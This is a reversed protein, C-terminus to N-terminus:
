KIVGTAILDQRAVELKEVVIAYFRDMTVGNQEVDSATGRLKDGLIQAVRMEQTVNGDNVAPSPWTTYKALLEAMVDTCADFLFQQDGYVHGANTAETGFSSAIDVCAQSTPAFFKPNITPVPVPSTAQTSPATSCGVAFTLVLVLSVLKTLHKM